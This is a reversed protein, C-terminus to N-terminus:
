TGVLGGEHKPARKARPLSQYSQFCDQSYVLHTVTESLSWTPVSPAQFAVQADTLGDLTKQMTARTRSFATIFEDLPYQRSATLWTIKGTFADFILQNLTATEIM